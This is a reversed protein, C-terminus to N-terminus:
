LGAAEEAEREFAEADAIGQWHAVEEWGMRGVAWERALDHYIPWREGVGAKEGMGALTWAVDLPRGKRGASEAIGRLSDLAEAEVDDPWVADDALTGCLLCWVDAPSWQAVHNRFDHRCDTVIGRQWDTPRSM